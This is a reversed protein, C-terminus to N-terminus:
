WPCTSSNRVSCGSAIWYAPRNFSSGHPRAAPIVFRPRRRRGWKDGRAADRLIRRRRAPASPRRAEVIRGPSTCPSTPALPAPLDVSIRIRAPSTWGSAPTISISPRAPRRDLRWVPRGFEAHVEDMLFQGENGAHRHELVDHQADRLARAEAQDVPPRDRPVDRRDRPADPDGRREVGVTLPKDVASFQSILMQRASTRLARRM